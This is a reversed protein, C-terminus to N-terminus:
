KDILWKELRGALGYDSFQPETIIEGAEFRQVDRKYEQYHQYSLLISVLGIGAYLAVNSSRKKFPLFYDRVSEKLSSGSEREM